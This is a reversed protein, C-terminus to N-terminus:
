PKAIYLVFKELFHSTVKKFGAQEALSFLKKQSLRDERRPGFEQDEDPWELIAVRKLAVRHAEKMATVPDDTEHLLLGMFVLDFSTNPFPLSEATGAQFHGRPVYIRAAKIMEPNVDIGTVRLGSSEFQEAFVGSGTGLDLVTRIDDLGELALNIVKVVELRAIREPDRLRDIERNFRKEHM